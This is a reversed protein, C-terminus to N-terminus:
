LPIGAAQRQMARNQGILIQNIATAAQTDVAEMTRRLWVEAGVENSIRLQELQSILQKGTAAAEDLLTQKERLFQGENALRQWNDNLQAQLEDHAQWYQQAAERWEGRNAESDLDLFSMPIEVAVGYQNEDFLPNELQKATFSLNWPSSDESAASLLSKRRQWDLTLLQMDPHQAPSFQTPPEPEDIGTPTNGLGTLQRYRLRWRATERRQEGREIQAQIREQRIALLGYLSAAEAALLEQQRVELEQLLKLKRLTFEERATALQLSWLAERVLGSYFLRRRRNGTDEALASTEAIIKDHRRGGASKIPLKLSLETEDTGEQEDSALYSLNVSPLAALWSSSSFPAVTNDAPASRELAVNMVENLNLNSATTAAFATPLIIVQALM